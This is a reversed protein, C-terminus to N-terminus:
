GVRPSGFELDSGTFRRRRLLDDLLALCYAVREGSRRQSAITVLCHKAQVHLRIPELVDPGFRPHVVEQSVVALRGHGIPSGNIVAPSQRSEQRRATRKGM